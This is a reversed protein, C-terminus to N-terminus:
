DWQFKLHAILLKLHVIPQIFKGFSSLLFQLIIQLQTQIFLPPLYELNHLFWHLIIQQLTRKKLFPLPTLSSYQLYRTSSHTCEPSNSSLLNLCSQRFHFIRWFFNVKRFIMNLHPFCIKLFGFIMKECILCNMKHLYRFQIPCGM